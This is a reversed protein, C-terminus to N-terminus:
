EVGGPFLPDSPISCQVHEPYIKKCYMCFVKHNSTVVKMCYGCDQVFLGKENGKTKRNKTEM